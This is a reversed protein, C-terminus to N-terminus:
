AFHREASKTRRARRGFRRPPRRPTRNLRGSTPTSLRAGRRARKQRPPPAQPAEQRGQPDQRRARHPGRLREADTHQGRDRDPDLRQAPSDVGRSSRHRPEAAAAITSASRSVAWSSHAAPTAPAWRSSATPTSPPWTRPRGGRAGIPPQPPTALVEDLRNDLRTWCRWRTSTDGWGYIAASAVSAPEVTALPIFPSLTPSTLVLLAADNVYDASADYGPATIVASVGINRLEAQTVVAYSAASGDACHAATLVVNPAVVTGSCLRVGTSSTYGIEVLSPISGPM